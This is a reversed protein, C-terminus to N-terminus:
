ALCVSSLDLYRCPASPSDARSLDEPAREWQEKDRMQCVACFQRIQEVVSATKYPRRRCDTRSTKPSPKPLNVDSFVGVAEGRRPPSRVFRASM